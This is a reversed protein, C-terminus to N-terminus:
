RVERMESGNDPARRVRDAAEIFRALSAPFLDRPMADCLRQMWALDDATDVTLRLNPRRLRGTALVPISTFAGRKLFPTVHERDYPDTAARSAALLASARMAEVTGGVPLGAEVIHDAGTRDLMTLTRGVSDIDVAPNDATARVVRHLEFAQAARAYRGLVDEIAGRFTHAGLRAAAAALVDDEPLTTTVLVVPYESAQLRRIAHEVLPRGALDLMSKGPLRTSGMRAQLLVATGRM